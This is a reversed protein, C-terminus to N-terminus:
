LLAEGNSIGYYFLYAIILNIIIFSIWTGINIWRPSIQKTNWTMDGKIFNVMGKIRWWTHLQRYGFTEFISVLGLKLLDQPRPYQGYTLEDCLLSTVSLIVGFLVAVIFFLLGTQPPLWGTFLLITIIIYGMLEIVPGLLEFLLYFPMSIMGVFGYRPNFIMKKFRWLTQFLGRQWRNRQSSLEAWNDPVETWCVPEPQFTIKHPIDNDKYYKHLKVTLEFDEGIADRYYGGVNLVAKRDFVGFAGSILILGNFFEWGTRGFLFSRIYEIVQVLAVFSLPTKVEKLEGNEFTCGNAVRIIGGVAVTEEDSAFTRLMKLLVDHELISDGDVACFIDKRAANLGANMADARQGNEKDIVCVNPYAKSGYVQRIPEHDLVDSVHRDSEYLEFTDKLYALTNDTSGDNVIIIEYDGYQQQLLSHISEEIEDEENYVPVIISYSKYLENKFVGSFDHVNLTKYQKKIHFFSVLVLFLYSLNIALFYFIIAINVFLLIDWGYASWFNIM